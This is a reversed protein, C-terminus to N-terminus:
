RQTSTLFRNRLGELLRRLHSVLWGPDPEIADLDVSGVLLEEVGHERAWQVTGGWHWEKVEDSTFPWVELRILEPPPCRCESKLYFDVLAVWTDYWAAQDPYNKM